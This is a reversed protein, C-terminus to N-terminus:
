KAVLEYRKFGYLKTTEEIWNEQYEKREENKDEILVISNLCGNFLVFVSLQRLVLCTPNQSFDLNAQLFM